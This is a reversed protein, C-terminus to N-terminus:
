DEWKSAETKLLYEEARERKGGECWGCVVYM